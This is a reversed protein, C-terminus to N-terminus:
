QTYYTTCTRSGKCSKTTTHNKEFCSNTLLELLSIYKRVYIYSFIPHAIQIGSQTNLTLTLKLFIHTTRVMEENAM